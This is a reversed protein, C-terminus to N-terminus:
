YLLKRQGFSKLHFSPIRLLRIDSSSRPQRSPIYFKLLMIIFSCQVVTSVVTDPDTAAINFNISTQDVNVSPLTIVSPNFVPPRNRVITVTVDGVAVGQRPRSGADTARVRVQAVPHFDVFM